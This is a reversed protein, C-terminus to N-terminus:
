RESTGFSSLEELIPCDPRDDGHCCDALVQLQDRISQLKAIDQDLEGIYQRALRNVDQSKRGKDKWLGVLMRIRELSFGLDRARRIFRLTQVDAEGYQRYGASSREAAPMLGVSEYYRIMKATVGSAEAAQGINM